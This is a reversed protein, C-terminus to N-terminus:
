ERDKGLNPQIQRERKCYKEEYNKVVEEYHKRLEPDKVRTLRYKARNYDASAIIRELIEPRM